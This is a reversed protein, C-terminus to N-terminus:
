IEGELNHCVFFSLDTPVLPPTAMRTFFADNYVLFPFIFMEIDYGVVLSKCYFNFKLVLILNNQSGNVAWM